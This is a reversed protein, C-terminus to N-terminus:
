GSRLEKVMVIIKKMDGRAVKGNSVEKISKAFANAIRSPSEEPFLAAVQLVSRDAWRTRLYNGRGLRRRESSAHIWAEVEEDMMDQLGDDSDELDIHGLQSHAIEHAIGEDSMGRTLLIAKQTGETNPDEVEINVGQPTFGKPDDDTRIESPKVIAVVYGPFSQDEPLHTTFITRNEKPM